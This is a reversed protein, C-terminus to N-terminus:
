WCGTTSPSRAGAQNLSLTGCLVDRTAQMGKPKANLQYTSASLSSLSYDYELGTQSTTMCDLQPLTNATASASSGTQDYRMYTTYYREMYSAAQSLCGEAAVRHTRAVQRTYSSFAIAALIGMIVVVM